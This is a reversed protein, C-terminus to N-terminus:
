FARKFRSMQKVDFREALRADLADHDTGGRHTLTYQDTKGSITAILPGLWDAGSLSEDDGISIIVHSEIRHAHQLPDFYALTAAVNTFKDSYSRLYDNIEEVPYGSTRERAEMLRYFVLDAAMVTDFGPRRAATVLALDDGSVAVRSTDVEPRGLLFEAARLCDAVVGRYVYQEQDDIGDTLLGPYSAAYTEDALRQGRHMIQLCVYRVRDNYDPVHNVSGYRPTLLLGPFPGEGVPVSFYGFIRYPGISTLRLTYVTSYENSRIPLPELVPRGPLQALEADVGSWFSDVTAPM